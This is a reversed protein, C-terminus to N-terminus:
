GHLSGDEASFAEDSVPATLDTEPPIVVTGRMFGHLREVRAAEAEPAVLMAVVAGRKTVIVREVQGTSVRDLLELCKAKFETAGITEVDAM